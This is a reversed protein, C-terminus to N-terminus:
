WKLNYKSRNIQDSFAELNYVVSTSSEMHSFLFPLFLCLIGYPQAHIHIKYQLTSLMERWHSHFSLTRSVILVTLHIRIWLRVPSKRIWLQKLTLFFSLNDARLSLEKYATDILVYTKMGVSTKSPLTILSFVLTWRSFHFRLTSFYLWWSVKSTYPSNIIVQFCCIYNYYKMSKCITLLPYFM